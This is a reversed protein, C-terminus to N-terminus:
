LKRLKEEGKLIREWHELNEEINKLRESVAEKLFRDVEMWLPKVISGVFFKESNAVKVHDDLGVLFPTVPLNLEIESWSQIRFEENLKMSWSSSAEWELTPTYLDCCHILVGLMLLYDKMEKQDYGEYPSFDGSDIREKFEGLEDFHKKIDTSLIAHIVEKRFLPYDNQHMKAFINFKQESLIKFARAAHHSELVSNDNYRIALKSASNIEYLNNKGTHDVDHM